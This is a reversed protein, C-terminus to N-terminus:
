LTHVPKQMSRHDLIMLPGGLVSMLGDEFM